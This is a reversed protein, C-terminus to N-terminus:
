LKTFPELTLPHNTLQYTLRTFMNQVDTTGFNNQRIDKVVSAPLNICNDLEMDFFFRQKNSHGPVEKNLIPADKRINYLPLKKSPNIESLVRKLM